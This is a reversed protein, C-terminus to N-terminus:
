RQFFALDVRGVVADHDHVLMSAPFCGPTLNLFVVARRWNQRRKFLLITLDVRRDSCTAKSLQARPSSRRHGGMQSVDARVASTATAMGSSGGMLCVPVGSWRTMRNWRVNYHELRAMRGHRRGDSSTVHDGSERSSVLLTVVCSTVERSQSQACETNENSAPNSQRFRTLTPRFSRWSRWCASDSLSLSVSIPTPKLM